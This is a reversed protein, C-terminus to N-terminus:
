QVVFLRAPEPYSETFEEAESANLVFARTHQLERRLVEMPMWDAGHGGRPIGCWVRVARAWIEFDRRKKARLPYRSFVDMLVSCQERKDVAWAACPNREAALPGKKDDYIRGVGTWRQIEELIPRDDMRLSIKATCAYANPGSPYIGFSGEGDFFGALWYGFGDDGAPPPTRPVRM